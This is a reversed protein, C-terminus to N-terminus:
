DNLLSFNYYISKLNSQVAYTNANMMLNFPLGDSNLIFIQAIQLNSLTSKIEGKKRAKSIAKVWSDMEKKQNCIL